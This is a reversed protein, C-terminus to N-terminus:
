RLIIVKQVHELKNEKIIRLIYLGDNLNSIDIQQNIDRYSNAFVIKGLNDILEIKQSGDYSEKDSSINLTNTAPNPYISYSNIDKVVRKAGGGKKPDDCGECSPTFSYERCFKEGNAKCYMVKFTFKDAEAL